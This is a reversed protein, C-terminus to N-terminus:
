SGGSGLRGGELAEPVHHDLLVDRHNHHDGLQHLVVLPLSVLIPRLLFASFWQSWHKVKSCVGPYLMDRSRILLGVKNPLYYM